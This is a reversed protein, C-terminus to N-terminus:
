EANTWRRAVVRSPPRRADVLASEEFETGAVDVDMALAFWRTIVQPQSLVDAPPVLTRLAPTNWFDGVTAWGAAPREDIARRAAAISGNQGLLMAILPAQAPTITNVNIPSMEVLPLACVWPRLKAYIEPTVGNVARLESAEAMITDATRYSPTLRGYVSDEAGNPNADDDSDIWDAASAAIGAATGAPVGIAQMLASFQDIAIPRSVLADPISGTALSNLNFCNGGDTVRAVARGDPLPLSIPRGLWGGALTTRTPTKAVLDDIRTTVLTEGVLAISRASELSIANGSLLTALRLRGFVTVAIAGMIGVLILVTLLAAGRENHGPVMM